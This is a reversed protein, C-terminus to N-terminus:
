LGAMFRLFRAELMRWDGGFLATFDATRRAPTYQQFPPRSATLKLYQIYQRPQTEILFFSLAWAEAYAASPNIGFLEDSAVLSAPLEPRHRPALTQRFVRLRDRNVRDALRTYNHSDHIGPAEFLMALGEALWLPPRSYRSHIGTNFATQHTAEHILVAANQRWNASDSRGGMDYINLRNSNLDYYGALGNPTSGGPSAYRAFDDHSKWVIGVLPFPPTAPQCGRVSFYSVFSHYLDEFREAWRDRQGRPHAVLYHSTGSVEYDGGLERLLATRFESLSYPRFHTSLKTLRQVEDPDFQWLRGDRGLLRLEQGVGGIAAGEVKRGQLTVEVMGGTPASAASAPWSLSGLLLATMLLCSAARVTISIPM